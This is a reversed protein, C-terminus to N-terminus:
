FQVPLSSTRTWPFLIGFCSFKKEFSVENEYYVDFDNDEEEYETDKKKCRLKAVVYIVLILLVVGVLGVLHMNYKILDMSDALQIDIPEKIENDKNCGDTDCTHCNFKTNDCIFNQKVCMRTLIKDGGPFTSWYTEKKM